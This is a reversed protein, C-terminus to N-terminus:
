RQIVTTITKDKFRFEVGGKLTIAHAGSRAASIVKPALIQQRFIELDMKLVREM